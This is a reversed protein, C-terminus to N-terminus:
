GASGQPLSTGLPPTSGQWHLDSKPSPRGGVRRARRSWQLGSGREDLIEAIHRAVTLSPTVVSGLNNLADTYSAFNWIQMLVRGRKFYSESLDGSTTLRSDVCSFGADGLLGSGTCSGGTVDVASWGIRQAQWAAAAQQATDFISVHYAVLTTHSGSADPHPLAVDMLYGTLRGEQEWSLSDFHVILPENSAQTNSEIQSSQVLAGAGFESASIAFLAPDIVVPTQPTATPTNTPTSTPTLSATETATPKAPARVTHCVRVRNSKGHVKKTVLKCTKKAAGAGHAISTPRGVSGTFGLVLLALLLASIRRM